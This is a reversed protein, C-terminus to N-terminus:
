INDLDVKWRPIEEIVKSWSIIRANVSKKKFKMTYQIDNMLKNPDHSICLLDNVYFLIYEYYNEGTPNTVTRM